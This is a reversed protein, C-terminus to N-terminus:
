GNLLSVLTMLCVSVRGHHLNRDITFHILINMCRNIPSYCSKNVCTVDPIFVAYVKKGGQILMSKWHDRYNLWSTNGNGGPKLLFILHDRKVTQKPNWWSGERRIEGCEIDSECFHETLMLSYINHLKLIAVVTKITIQTKPCRLLTQLSEKSGM